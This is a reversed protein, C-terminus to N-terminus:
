DNMMDVEITYAVDVPTGNLTAPKLKGFQCVIRTLALIYNPCSNLGFNGFAQEINKIEGEKTVVFSLTHIWMPPENFCGDSRQHQIVKPLFSGDLFVPPTTVEELRYIKGEIKAKPYSYTPACYLYDSTGFREYNAIWLTDKTSLNVTIIKTKGFPILEDVTGSAYVGEYFRYILYRGDPRKQYFWEIGDVDVISDGKLSYTDGICNRKNKYYACYEIRRCTNSFIIDERGCKASSIRGNRYEKKDLNVKKGIRITDQAMTELCLMMTSIILFGKKM